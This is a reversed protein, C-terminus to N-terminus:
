VPSSLVPLCKPATAKAGRGQGDGPTQPVSCDPHWGKRQLRGFFGVASGGSCCGGERPTGAPKTLWQKEGKDGPWARSSLPLLTARRLLVAQGRNKWLSCQPLLARSRAPRCVCVQWRSLGEKKVWPSGRSPMHLTVQAPATSTCPGRDAGWHNAQLRGEPSKRTRHTSLRTGELVCKSIHPQLTGSEEASLVLRSM